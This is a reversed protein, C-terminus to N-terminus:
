ARATRAHAHFEKNRKRISTEKKLYKLDRALSAAAQRLARIEEVTLYDISRRM